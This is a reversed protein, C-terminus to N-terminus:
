ELDEEVDEAEKDLMEELESRVSTFKEFDNISIKMLDFAYIVKGKLNESEEIETKPLTPYRQSFHTIIVHKANMKCAQQLAEDITSHMKEVASEFRSNEMTGEHILFDVNEGLLVHEPLPRTDGSYSHTEFYM